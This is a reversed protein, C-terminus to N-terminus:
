RAMMPMGLWTYLILSVPVLLLFIVSSILLKRRMPLTPHLMLPWVILTMAGFCLYLAFAFFPVM